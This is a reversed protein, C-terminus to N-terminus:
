DVDETPDDATFDPRRANRNLLGNLYPTVAAVAQEVWANKEAHEKRRAEVIAERRALEREALAFFRDILETNQESCCLDFSGMSLRVEPQEPM